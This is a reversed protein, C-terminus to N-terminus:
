ESWLRLGYHWPPLDITEGAKLGVEGAWVVVQEPRPRIDLNPGRPTDGHRWHTVLIESAATAAHQLLTTPRECHLINFLLVVDVQVGFGSEMVDRQHCVIQLGEARERTRKLMAADVDFTHLTGRIAQAVPASFTGYGCGLEAVDRYQQIEFRGLTLPVDVLTEWYAEDPMGSDRIRMPVNLLRQANVFM